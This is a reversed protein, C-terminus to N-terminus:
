GQFITWEILFKCYQYFIVTTLTTFYFLEKQLLTSIFNKEKSSSITKNKPSRPIDSLCIYLYIKSLESRKLIIEIGFLTGKLIEGVGGV